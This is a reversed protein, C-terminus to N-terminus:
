ETNIKTRSAGSCTKLLFIVNSWCCCGRSTNIYSLRASEGMKRRREGFQLAGLEPVMLLAVRAVGCNAHLPRVLLNTCYQDMLRATLSVPKLYIYLLM